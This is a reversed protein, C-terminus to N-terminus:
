IYIYIQKSIECLSYVTQEGSDARVKQSQESEGRHYVKEDLHDPFNTVTVSSPYVQFLRYPGPGLCSAPLFPAPLASCYVADGPGGRPRACLAHGLTMSYLFAPFPGLAERGM